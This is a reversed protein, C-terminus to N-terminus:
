KKQYVHGNSSSFEINFKHHMSIKFSLSKIYLKHHMAIWGEATGSEGYALKVRCQGREDEGDGRERECAHM